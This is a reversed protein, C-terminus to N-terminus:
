TWGPGRMTPRFGLRSRSPAGDQLGARAGERDRSPRGGGAAFALLRQEGPVAFRRPRSLLFRGRPTYYLRLVRASGFGAGTPLRGSRGGRWGTGPEGHFGRAQEAGTCVRSVCYRCCSLLTQSAPPPSPSRRGAFGLSTAHFGDTMPGSDPQQEEKDAETKGSRREVQPESGGEGGARAGSGGGRGGAPSGAAPFFAARFAASGASGCGDADRAGLSRGSGWSGLSRRTRGSRLSRSAGGARCSRGPRDARRAGGAGLTRGARHSRGARATRSAVAARDPQPAPDTGLARFAIGAGGSRGARLAIGAWLADGTRLASRSGLALGAWLPDLARFTVGTGRARLAIGAGGTCNPRGTRL